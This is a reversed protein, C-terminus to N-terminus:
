SYFPFMSKSLHVVKSQPVFTLQNHDYTPCFSGFIDKKKSLIFVKAANFYINNLFFCHVLQIFCTKSKTLTLEWDSTFWDRVNM